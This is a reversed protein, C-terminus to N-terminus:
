NEVRVRKKRLRRFCGNRRAIRHQPHKANSSKESNTVWLLLSRDDSSSDGIMFNEVTDYSLEDFLLSLSIPADLNCNAKWSFILHM